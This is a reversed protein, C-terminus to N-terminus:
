IHILSLGPGHFLDLTETAVPEWLVAKGAPLGKSKKSEKKDQADVAGALSLTLLLTWVGIFRAFRINM